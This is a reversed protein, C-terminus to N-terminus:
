QKYKKVLCLTNDIGPELDIIEMEPPYVCDLLQRMGPIEKLAGGFSGDAVKIIGGTTMSISDGDQVIGYSNEPFISKGPGLLGRRSKNRLASPILGAHMHGTLLLDYKKLRPDITNGNVVHKPSHKLLINFRNSDLDLEDLATIYEDFDEKQEKYWYSEPTINTTSVDIDDTLRIQAATVGNEPLGAMFINDTDRLRSWYAYNDTLLRERDEEPEAEAYVTDHNGDTYIITAHKAIEQLLELIKTRALDSGKISEIMDGAIVVVKIKKAIVLDKIRELKQWESHADAFFAITTKNKLKRNTIKYETIITKAM